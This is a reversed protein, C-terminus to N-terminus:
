PKEMEVIMHTDHKKKLRSFIRDSLRYFSYTKIPGYKSLYTSLKNNLTQIGLIKLGLKGALDEFVAESFSHLHGFMNFEKLCYPCKCQNVKERYPVAIVLRGGPKIVGCVKMLINEYDELHEIVESSVVADYAKPFPYDFVSSCIQTIGLKGAKDAFKKLREASIDMADVRHGKEALMCSLFGDGCGLDLIELAKGTFIRVLRSYRSIERYYEFKQGTWHWINNERGADEYYEKYNLGSENAM